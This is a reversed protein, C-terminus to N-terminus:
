GIQTYSGGPTMTESGGSTHFSVGIILANAAVTTISDAVATGSGTSSGGDADLPTADVGSFADQSVSGYNGTGQPDITLTCAGSTGAIGYAIFSKYVGGNGSTDAGQIVSFTTSCGTVSMTTTGTNWNTGAVILLDGATINNPYAQTTSDVNSFEKTARMSAVEAIAAHGVAPLSLLLGLALLRRM